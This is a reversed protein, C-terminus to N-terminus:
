QVGGNWLWFQIADREEPTLDPSGAQPMGGGPRTRELIKDKVEGAGNIAGAVMYSETILMGPPPDVEPNESVHCSACKASFVSAVGETYSVPTDNVGFPKENEVSSENLGDSATVRIWYRATKAADAPVTWTYLNTTEDLEDALTSWTTGDSTLEIKLTFPDEEKDSATFAVTVDAGPAYILDGAPSTLHISPASNGSVGGAIEFSGPAFHVTTVSGNTLMAYLFYTGSEVFSVDWPVQTTTTALDEIIAVGGLITDKKDTYFLGWRATPAVNGFSVQVDYSIASLAVEEDASPKVFKLEGDNGVVIGTGQGEM